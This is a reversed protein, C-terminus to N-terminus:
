PAYTRLLKEVQPQAPEVALSQEFARRAEERAGGDLRDSLLWSNLACVGIGNWAKISRHDQEAAHRYAVIARDYDAARFALWAARESAAASPWRRAFESGASSAEAFRSEATYAAILGDMTGESVEGLTVAEEYAASAEAARGAILYARAVRSWADADAGADAALRELFPIAASRNGSRELADAIGAIARMDTPALVLAQRYCRVADDNRQAALHTRALGIHADVNRPDAQIAAEYSRQAARIDGQELTISGVAVQVDVLRPNETLLARFEGLAEQYDGRDAVSQARRLRDSEEATPAVAGVRAATLEADSKAWPRCGGLMTVSVCAFMALALARLWAANARDPDRGRLKGEKPTEMIMPVHRFVLMHALTAFCSKGCAGGGLNEHRDLHSGLAGKSDNAHIVRVHARGVVSEFSQWFSKAKAPTSMDHGYATAHCTDFCFAVREPNKVAARIRALHELPGGLNTGSGVTNEICTVTSYGKTSRHIADLETVLRRIGAEEDVANGATGLHAGPHMVCSPIGLQECRETEQLQLASSKARMEADPSALNVLYSNHSVLRREPNTHWGADHVAARFAKIEEDALPKWKWQRQNKTFVQVCDLELRQAEQVALHMGGAISLHSGVLM